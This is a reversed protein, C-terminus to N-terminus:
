ISYVTFTFRSDDEAHKRVIKGRTNKECELSLHPSSNAFYKVFSQSHPCQYHAIQFEVSRFYVLFSELGGLASSLLLM